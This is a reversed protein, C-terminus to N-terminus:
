IQNLKKLREALVEIGRKLMVEHVLVDADKAFDILPPFFITDGSFVVKKNEIEFKFAFCNELLGHVVKLASVKVREDQMVVGESIEKM